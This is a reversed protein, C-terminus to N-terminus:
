IQRNATAYMSGSKTELYKIYMDFCDKSVKRMKFRTATNISANTSTAFNYLSGREDFKCYYIDGSETNTVSAYYEHLKIDCSEFLKGDKSYVNM